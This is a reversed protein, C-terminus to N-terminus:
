KMLTEPKHNYIKSSISDELPSHMIYAIQPNPQYRRYPNAKKRM